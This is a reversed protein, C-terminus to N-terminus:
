SKSGKRIRCINRILTRLGATRGRSTWSGDGAWTNSDFFVLLKLLANSSVEADFNRKIQNVKRNLYQPRPHQTHTADEVGHGVNDAIRFLPANVKMSKHFITAQIKYDYNGRMLRERWINKKRESFNVWPKTGKLHFDLNSNAELNRLAAKHIEWFESSLAYGWPSFYFTTRWSNFPIFISSMGSMSVIPFHRKREIEYELRTKITKISEYSMKVDDEIVIVGRSENLVWDIASPIHKDCGLNVELFRFKVNDSNLKKLDEELEAIPSNKLELKESEIVGDVSIYLNISSEKAVAYCLNINERLLGVRNYGILLIAISGRKMFLIYLIGSLISLISRLKITILEILLPALYFSQILWVRLEEIRSLYFIVSFSKSQYDFHM